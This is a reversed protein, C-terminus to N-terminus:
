EAAVRLVTKGHLHGQRSEALAVPAQELDLVREVPVELGETMIRSTLRELMEGSTKRGYIGFSLGSERIAKEDLGAVTSLVKGGSRIHPILSAFQEANGVMTAVADVRDFGAGALQDGLPAPTTHDVIAAAGRRQTAGALQPRATAIVTLGAKAALQTLFVGVGGTAGIVLLRAGPPLALEELMGLATLGSVPIAAATEFDMGEPMKAIVGDQRALVYQAFTGKGLRGMSGFVRDGPAFREVGEGLADVLGSGDVGPVFPLKLEGFLGAAAKGDFPNLGAVQVRVRLEGAAPAPTDLTTVRPEQGSEMVAVAKM